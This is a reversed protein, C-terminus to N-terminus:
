KIVGKKFVQDDRYFESVILSLSRGTLYKLVFCFVLWVPEFFLFTLPGCFFWVIPFDFFRNWQLLNLSTFFVRVNYNKLMLVGANAAVVVAAWRGGRSGDGGIRGIIWTVGTSTASSVSSQSVCLSQSVWCTM